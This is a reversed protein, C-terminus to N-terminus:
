DDEAFEEPDDDAEELPDCDELAEDVAELEELELPVTVDLEEDIVEEADSLELEVEEELM